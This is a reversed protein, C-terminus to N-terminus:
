PLELGYMIRSERDLVPVCIGRNICITPNGEDDDECWSEKFKRVSSGGPVSEFYNTLVRRGANICRDEYRFGPRGGIRMEVYSVGNEDIDEICTKPNREAEGSIDGQFFSIFLLFVFGIGLFLAVEKNEM